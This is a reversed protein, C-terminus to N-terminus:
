REFFGKLMTTAGISEYRYKFNTIAISYEDAIFNAVFKINNADCLKKIEYAITDVKEQERTKKFQLLDM